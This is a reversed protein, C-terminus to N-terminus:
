SGTMVLPVFALRVLIAEDATSTLVYDRRESGTNRGAQSVFNPHALIQGHAKEIIESANGDKIFLILAAKVDRWGLYSLLQDIGRTFAAAGTWFKCEGIFVNKGDQRALIDTKGANNAAEGVVFMDKADERELNSNLMFVIWDRLTEEDPVLQKASQSRYGMANGFRIITNLVIEYTREALTWGGVGENPKALTVTRPKAPIEVVREPPVPATPIELAQMLARSQRIGAARLRLRELVSIRMYARAREVDHNIAEVWQVLLSTQSAIMRKVENSDQSTLYEFIVFEEDLDAHFPTPPPNSPVYSFYGQNSSHPIKLAILNTVGGGREKPNVFPADEVFREALRLELPQLANATVIEDAHQELSEDSWDDIPRSDAMQQAAELDEDLREALPEKAFRLPM